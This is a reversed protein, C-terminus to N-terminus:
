TIALHSIQAWDEPNHRQTGHFSGDPPGDNKPAKLLPEGEM